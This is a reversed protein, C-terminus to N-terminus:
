LLLLTFIFFTLYNNLPAVTPFLLINGPIKGDFKDTLDTLKGQSALSSSAM